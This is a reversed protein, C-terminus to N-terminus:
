ECRHRRGVAGGRCCCFWWHGDTTCTTARTKSIGAAASSKCCSAAANTASSAAAPLLVGHWQLLADGEHLLAPWGDSCRRDLFTALGAAWRLLAPRRDYCCWDGASALGAAAPLLASRRQCSAGTAMTAGRWWLLLLWPTGEAATCPIRTALPSAADAGLGGRM